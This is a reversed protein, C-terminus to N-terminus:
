LVFALVGIAFNIGALVLHMIYDGKVAAADPRQFLKIGGDSAKDGTESDPTPIQKNRMNNAM